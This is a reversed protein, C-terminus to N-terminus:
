VDSGKGTSRISVVLGPRTIKSPFNDVAM